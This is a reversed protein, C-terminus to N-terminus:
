FRFLALWIMAGCQNCFPQHSRPCPLVHPNANRSALAPFASTPSSGTYKFVASLRVMCQRPLSATVTRLKKSFNLPVVAESTLKVMPWSARNPRRSSRPIATAAAGLAAPWGDVEAGVVTSAGAAALAAPLGVQVVGTHEARSGRSPLAHLAFM